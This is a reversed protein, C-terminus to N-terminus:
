SSAPPLHGLIRGAEEDTLDYHYFTSYSEKIEAIMDLDAFKEPYFTKALYEMLLIGESSYDWYFVGQPCVSVHGEKVARLPQWQPDSLVPETSSVRGMMIYDPDWTMVQEISVEPAQDDIEDSVMKGGAMEIWWQTYTNKGYTTLTDDGAIYYVKVREDEPIQSTVTLIRDAKRDFYACYENAKETADPGLTEGFLRVEDKVTEEFAEISTPENEPSTLQTVVVPIGVEEMMAINDPYNWFFIVDVDLKMLEEISPDYFTTMSPVDDLGPIIKAAWPMKKAFPPVVGFKDEEGLLFVKEYSPGVLAAAKTVTDPLTVTRGAFDIVTHTGNPVSPQVDALCTGAMCLLLLLLIGATCTREWGSRVTRLSSGSDNRNAHHYSTKM